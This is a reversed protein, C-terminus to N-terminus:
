PRKQFPDACLNVELTLQGRPTVWVSSWHIQPAGSADVVNGVLRQTAWADFGSGRVEVYRLRSSGPDCIVPTYDSPQLVPGTPGQDQSQDDAPASQADSSEDAFVTGALCLCVALLLLVFM